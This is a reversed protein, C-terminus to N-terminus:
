RFREVHTTETSLWWQLTSSVQCDSVIRDGVLTQGISPRSPAIKSMRTPLTVILALLASTAVNIGTNAVTHSATGGASAAVNLVWTAVALWGMPFAGPVAVLAVTGHGEPATSM